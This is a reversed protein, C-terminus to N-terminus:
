EAGNTVERLYATVHLFVMQPGGIVQTAHEESWRITVPDERIVEWGDPVNEYVAIQAATEVAEISFYKATTHKRVPFLLHWLGDPRPRSVAIGAVPLPMGDSM